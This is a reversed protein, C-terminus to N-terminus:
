PSEQEDPPPALMEALTVPCTQPLPLPLIADETEPLRRLAERYLKAINIRQAMSPAYSRRADDRQGRAEARWHSADRSTPWAEVKLDHLLAQVLHSEVANRESRGVAEIEEAVNEWDIENTARRRLADAQAESWLLIDDEYLNSM